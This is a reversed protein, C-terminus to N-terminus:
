KFLYSLRSDEKVFKKIEHFSLNLVEVYGPIDFGVEKGQWLLEIGDKRIFFENPLPILDRKKTLSAIKKDLKRNVLVLLKEDNVNKFLDKTKSSIMEGDKLSFIKSYLANTGFVHGAYDYTFLKFNILEDDIYYPMSSNILEVYFSFDKQQALKDKQLKILKEQLEQPNKAGFAIIGNIKSRVSENLDIFEPILFADDVMSVTFNLGINLNEQLMSKAFFLTNLKIKSLKFSKSENGDKLEVDLRPKEQEDFSLTAKINDNSNVDSLIFKSSNSELIGLYYGENEDLFVANVSYNIDDLKELTLYLRNSFDDDLYYWFGQNKKVDFPLNLSTNENNETSSCSLFIFAILITLLTKM